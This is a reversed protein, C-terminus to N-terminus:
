IVGADCTKATGIDDRVDFAVAIVVDGTGDVRAVVVCGSAVVDCFVEVAIVFVVAGDVGAVRRHTTNECRIVRSTIISEWAGRVRTLFECATFVDTVVGFAVVALAAGVVGTLQGYAAFEAWDCAQTIVSDIARCVGAEILVVQGTDVGRGMGKTHVADIAGEIAAILARSATVGRFTSVTIITNGAGDVGTAQGTAVVRRIRRDTVITFTTGGIATVCNQATLVGGLREETTVVPDRTGYFGALITCATNRGCFVAQTIIADIAGCICAIGQIPTDRGGDIGQTIVPNWTCRVGAVFGASAAVRRDM